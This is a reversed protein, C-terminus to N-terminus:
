ERYLKMEDLIEKEKQRMLTRDNEEEHDFGFLHLMSHVTLYGVERVFSHGYEEAQEACKELSIVVDGFLLHGEAFDWPEPLVEGAKEYSLLPFSLVDTARSIGRARANLKEIQANDTFTVSVACPYPYGFHAWVGDVAKQVIKEADERSTAEGEYTFDIKNM